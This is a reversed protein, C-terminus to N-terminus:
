PLSSTALLYVTVNNVDKVAVYKTTSLTGTASSISNGLILSEGSAIKLDDDLQFYDEDEMWKLVGSHSTGSFNVTVDTNTLSTFTISNETITLRDLYSAEDGAVGSAALAV